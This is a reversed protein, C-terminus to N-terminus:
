RFNPCSFEFLFNLSKQHNKQCVTFNVRVHHTSITKAHIGHYSPLSLLSFTTSPGHLLWTTTCAWLVPPWLTPLDWVQLFFTLICIKLLHWYILSFYLTLWHKFNWFFHRIVNKPFIEQWFQCFLKNNIKPLLIRNHSKKIPNEDKTYYM